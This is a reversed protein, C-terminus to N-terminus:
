VIKYTYFYKHMETVHYRYSALFKNHEKTVPDSGGILIFPTFRQWIPSIEMIHHRKEKSIIIIDVDTLLTIYDFNERYVINGKRVDYTENIVFVTKYSDALECVHGFADGLVLVNRAKSNIKKLRKIFKSMNKM